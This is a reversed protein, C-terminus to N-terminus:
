SHIRVQNALEKGKWRMLIWNPALEETLWKISVLNTVVEDDSLSKFPELKRWYTTDVESDANFGKTELTYKKFDIIEGELYTTISMQKAPAFKNPVNSAEMTGTLTMSKYDASSITVRVPWSESAKEGSAQSVVRNIWSGQMPQVSTSVQISPNGSRMPASANRRATSLHFAPAPTSGSTHQSGSFVAGPRLWSTPAPGSIRATDLIFDERDLTFLDGQLFGGAAASSIRDSISECSRLRELYKIAEELWKAAESGPTQVEARRSRIDRAVAAFVHPRQNAQEQLIQRQVQYRRYAESERDHNRSHDGDPNSRAQRRVSQLLAEARLSRSHTFPAANNRPDETRDVMPQWDMEEDDLIDRRAHSHATRSLEQERRHRRTANDRVYDRAFSRLDNSLIPPENIDHETTGPAWGQYGSIANQGPRRQRPPSVSVPEYAPATPLANRNTHQIVLNELAGVRDRVGELTTRLGTGSNSSHNQLPQNHRPAASSTPFRSSFRPNAQELVSRLYAIDDSHRQDDM